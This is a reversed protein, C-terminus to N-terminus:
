LIEFTLQIKSVNSVKVTVWLTFFLQKYMAATPWALAQRPQKKLIQDFVPIIFNYAGHSCPGRWRGDQM